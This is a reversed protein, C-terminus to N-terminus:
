GTQVIANEAILNLAERHTALMRGADRELAAVNAPSADDFAGSADLLEGQLRVHRVTPIHDVIHAAGDAQGAMAVDLIVPAWGAFGRPPKIPKRSNGTGLSLILLEDDPWLKRAEAFAQAAPNNAFVGGDVYTVFPPFYTPAASTAMAARWAHWGASHARWSKLFRPHMADLDFAIVMIHGSLDRMMTDGLVGRVTTELGKPNYKARWFRRVFLRQRSFIMAARRVYLDKMVEARIGAGLGLAIIGGTSTGVILDFFDVLRGGVKWELYELLRAPLIGHLGGGDIALVRKM